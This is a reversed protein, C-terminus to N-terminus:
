QGILESLQQLTNRLADLISAMNSSQYISSSPSPIYVATDQVTRLGGKNPLPYCVVTYGVSTFSSSPPIVPYVTTSGNTSIPNDNLYCNDAGSSTVTIVSSQGASIHTPNASITVTPAPVTAPIVTVTVSQSASLGGYLGPPTYCTVTYITTQIPSVKFTDNRNIYGGSGNDFTRYCDSTTDTGNSLTITSWQSEGATITSLNISLTFSPASGSSSTTNTSPTSGSTASSTTTSTATTTTTSSTATTSTTTISSTTATTQQVSAVPVVTSGGVTPTTVSTAPATVAPAPVTTQVTPAEIGPAQIGPATLLGPPVVGSQGAGQTILENIKSTTKPGVIGLAEIGEREQLRRVAAETLPGFYGTVPATYFEPYKQKLFTQLEKVDDGSLGRSLSRTLNLETKIQTIQTKLEEVQAQLIKIQEQLQKIILTADTQAFVLVPSLAFLAILILKKM